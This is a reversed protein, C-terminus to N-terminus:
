GVFVGIDGKRKSVRIHGVASIHIHDAVSVHIHGAASVHTYGATSVHVHGAAGIIRYRNKKNMKQKSLFWNIAAILLDQLKRQEEINPRATFHACTFGFLCDCAYACVCVCVCVRM